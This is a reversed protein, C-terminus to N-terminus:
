EGFCGEFETVVVRGNRIKGQVREAALWTVHAAAPKL